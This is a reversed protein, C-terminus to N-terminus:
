RANEILSATLENNSTNIVLYPKNNTTTGYFHNIAVNNESLTQSIRQYGNEPLNSKEIFLVPNETIQIVDNISQLATTATSNDDTVLFIHAGSGFGHASFAEVSIGHSALQDIIQAALGTNNNVDLQIESTVFYNNM